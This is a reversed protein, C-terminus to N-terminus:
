SWNGTVGDPVDSGERYSSGRRERDISRSDYGTTVPPEKKQRKKEKKAM